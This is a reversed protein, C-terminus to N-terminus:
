PATGSAVPAGPERLLKEVAEELNEPGYVGQVQNRINGRRDILFSSPLVDIGGFDRVMSANAMAVPYTIHHEALFRKADASGGQDMAVGLVVLDGDGHREYLAEFGPMEMRCPPCWTAWFNVLVVKGRFQDNSVVRGDLTTLRFPPASRGELSAGSPTAAVDTTAANTASAEARRQWIDLVVLIGVVITVLMRWPFRGKPASNARMERRREGRSKTGM